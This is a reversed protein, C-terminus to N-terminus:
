YTNLIQEALAANYEQRLAIFQELKQETYAQTHRDIIQKQITIPPIKIPFECACWLWRLFQFRPAM